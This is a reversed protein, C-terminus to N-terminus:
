QAEKPLMICSHPYEEGLLSCVMVWFPYILAQFSGRGYEQWTYM